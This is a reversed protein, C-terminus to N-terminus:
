PSSWVLSLIRLEHSLRLEWSPAEKSLAQLLEGRPRRSPKDRLYASALKTPWPSSGVFALLARRSPVLSHERHLSHSNGWSPWSSSRMLALPIEGRLGPIDKRSPWPSSKAFAYFLEGRPVPCSTVYKSHCKLSEIPQM